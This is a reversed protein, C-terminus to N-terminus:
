FCPAFTQGKRIKKVMVIFSTVCFLKEFAIASRFCVSNFFLESNADVQGEDAIAIFFINYGQQFRYITVNLVNWCNNTINKSIM